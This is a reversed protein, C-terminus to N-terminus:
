RSGRRAAACRVPKDGAWQVRQGAKCKPGPVCTRGSPAELNVKGRPPAPCDWVGARVAASGADQTYAVAGAAAGLVLAMVVAASTVKGRFVIALLCIVFAAIAGLTLPVGSSPADMMRGFGDSPIVVLVFVAAAALGLVNVLVRTGAGSKKRPAAPPSAKKGRTM